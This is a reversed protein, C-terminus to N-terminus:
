GSNRLGTAIGNITIHILREQDSSLEGRRQRKILELQIYNLINFYPMRYDLSAKLYPNDALLEDHGEIALIVNKTVQWENLITEYIAKVQEDECLKAYEFAINMNSKSLVMDVNSLLSQFFPWNQYMDRLIAINEPNKNIFEKFSSGVGYWGPFMVRSQSWSFVWPIARLGGIETITKRAAPRSGINFSSIAKIPSSEFFYDYFHENGFVLDRYIDYSRDVVQDMITEYRNPTNTDSKKQTIMRNIAASVLMELNYYAADKNGYKNGIVEGQETLRIRDKISKLPQSTIAEYTPGGGRGVTGGRGHFFTVKVGFEDGIATLQQQAKYLTWCSSLYGGDKNSDSYGLMIEQYNNRSDIWKKALSLSLYKRMTEESHDLDEITEFLPVIQVRARETDVLGVEKLLIALELMDSLSTAHSIITQRIVDDGLKDKLVRATKFIALEKALLESKEAHTASLIRPDEELEKLLLDCKEEESLESYRSHIGASKLLEAVCAEYVSSDQRMDISALYFGFIEVAQLLEVFDGSILSEGKNELLSDRIAILDKYFDNATEYRTGVEEDEILYTKTAQIKSQIDFLARRYLEKERYISNDKSQRAMERVQKSVNVISTSLSFERYLQYIKKDYYNMIVECQTLASQKLTKATVFPNGDRDGGIWMGMTIPKAQKLNLGHAQALRKYETTLHPVAKLFSSNYYEMANTIENTVKLKKERIMDTQMIIEIYRRLDNYWKDKNILGLKVDRYKRLLSHIHNTLDLMSKRQVQTPHATLVPVVNLHELIEVANEKEAVLKITTSLKGLYDQDINNQHNIEYALDVDESINILLPLISFYRSIYVMEDNSLSTVLRNLGQYDEQTSLEKLQIIKEFTEPALMNKTIDELLETLILVEEQVVSKNSYNELKQLSM